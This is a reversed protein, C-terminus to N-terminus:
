LKFVPFSLETGKPLKTSTSFYATPKDKENHPFMLKHYMSIIDFLKFQSDYDPITNNKLCIKYNFYPVDENWGVDITSLSEIDIGDVWNFEESKITNDFTKQLVKLIKNETILFKM